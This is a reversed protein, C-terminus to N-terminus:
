KEIVIVFGFTRLACSKKKLFLFFHEQLEFFLNMNSITNGM